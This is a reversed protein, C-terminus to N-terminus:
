ASKLITSFNFKDAREQSFRLTEPMQTASKGASTHFCPKTEKLKLNAFYKEKEREQGQWEQRNTNLPWIERPIAAMKQWWM